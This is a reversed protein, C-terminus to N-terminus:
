PAIALVTQRRQDSGSQFAQSQQIKIKTQKHQCQVTFFSGCAACVWTVHRKKTVQWGVLHFTQNWSSYSCSVMISKNVNQTTIPGRQNEALIVHLSSTHAVSKILQVVSELCSFSSANTEEIQLPIVIQRQERPYLCMGGKHAVPFIPWGCLNCMKLDYKGIPAKSIVKIIIM